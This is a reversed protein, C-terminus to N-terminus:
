RHTHTRSGKRQGLDFLVTLTKKRRVGRVAREGKGNSNEDCHVRERIHRHIALRVAITRRDFPILKSVYATSKNKNTESKNNMNRGEERKTECRRAVRKLQKRLATKIRHHSNMVQSQNKREFDYKTKSTNGNNKVNQKECQRWKGIHERMALHVVVESAGHEGEGDEDRARQGTEGGISQRGGIEAIRVVHRVLPRREAKRHAFVSRKEKGTFAYM